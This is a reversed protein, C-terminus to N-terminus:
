GRTYSNSKKRKVIANQHHSGVGCFTITQNFDEIESRFPQESFRGNNAHYRHNKVGFKAAWIEFAPKGELTEEKRTSIM